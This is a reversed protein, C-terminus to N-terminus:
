HSSCSFNFRLLYDCNMWIHELFILFISKLVIESWSTPEKVRGDLILSIRVWSSRSSIMTKMSTYLIFRGLMLGLSYIIVSFYSRISIRTLVNLGWAETLTWSIEKYGVSRSRHGQDYPALFTSCASNLENSSSIMYWMSLIRLCSYSSVSTNILSSIVRM